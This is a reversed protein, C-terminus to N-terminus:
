RRPNRRRGARRSLLRRVLSAYRPPGLMARLDTLPEGGDPLTAGVQGRGRGLERGAAAQFDALDEAAAARAVEASLLPPSAEGESEVEFLWGAEYPAAAVLGPDELVRGNRAVVTGGAPSPIPLLEAGDELWCATEGATLRSGAAPLIVGSSRDWLRAVLADIGLRLRGGDMAQAWGHGPHYGRDAPFSWPTLRPAVPSRLTETAPRPGRMVQDFPCSECEGQRDCLKFAVLGASMWVCPLLGPPYAQPATQVPTEGQRSM